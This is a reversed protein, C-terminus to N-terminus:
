KDGEEQNEKPLNQNIYLAIRDYQKGVASLNEAKFAGSSAALEIIKLINHLDVLTLDIKEEM